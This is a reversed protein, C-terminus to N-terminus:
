CSCGRFQQCPAGGLGQKLAYLTKERITDVGNFGISGQGAAAVSDAKPDLPWHKQVLDEYTTWEGTRSHRGYFPVGMTLQLPPLIGKGQDASRKGYDMSSHHGGGQDYSMMHLLDVVEAIRHEKLLQEQRGDPYYAMTIVKSNWKHKAFM